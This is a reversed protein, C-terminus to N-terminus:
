AAQVEDPARGFYTDTVTQPDGIMRIKGHELWIVQNCTNMILDRSHTALVLIETADVM